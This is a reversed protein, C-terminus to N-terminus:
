KDGGGGFKWEKARRASRNTPRGPKKANKKSKGLKKGGPLSGKTARHGEFVFSEPAKLDNAKESATLDSSPVDPRNIMAAGARGLLKSARGMASKQEESMKPNYVGNAAPRSWTDKKAVNRKIGKARSVRLKRPLMPPFRKDNYLLAAEVANEDQLDDTLTSVM